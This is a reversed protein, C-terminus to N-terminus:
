ITEEAVKIEKLKFLAFTYFKAMWVLDKENNFMRKTMQFLTKRVIKTFM